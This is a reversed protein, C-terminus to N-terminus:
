VLEGQGAPESVPNFSAAYKLSTTAQLGIALNAAQKTARLDLPADPTEPTLARRPRIADLLPRYHKQVVVEWTFQEEFRQRGAQGLRQRQRPDDLLIEIQQALDDAHGPEFLLGTAGEAVTFQLGGIRSAIVPKGAGMAEVASRGLAEEAITPFVLVDIESMVAALAGQTQWGIFRVFDEAEFYPEDTVILEFDRRQRWLKGCADRLVHFGKMFEQTLGAFLLRVPQGSREQQDIPNLPKPFRDPNFGSPIVCVRPTYPGVMAAILPNVVLVAEAQAFAQRLKQDYQLTGYGSLEREAQHLSGSFRNRECVCQRCIEPTAFQHRPCSVPQGEDNVLLRVNNLPCLGEQAALRLFYRYGQVAEALLPKFSWSDTIIVYDPRYQDISQRVRRQIEAANWGAPEFALRESPTSLTELVQGVGWEAYEVYIHRVDYGARQLAEGVEATHVTGGGTSPWNFLLSVIAIRSRRTFEPVAGDDPVTNSHNLQRLNELPVGWQPNFNHANELWRRAEVFQGSFSALVGLDNHVHALLNVDSAISLLRHLGGRSKQHEGSIAQQRLRQYEGWHLVNASDLM